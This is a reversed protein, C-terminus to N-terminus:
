TCWIRGHSTHLETPKPGNLTCGDGGDLSAKCGMLAVGVRRGGKTAVTDEQGQLDTQEACALSVPDELGHGSTDTEKWEGRTRLTRRHPLM